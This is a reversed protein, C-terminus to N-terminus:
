SGVLGACILKVRSGKSKRRLPKEGRKDNSIGAHDSGYLGRTRVTVSRGPISREGVGAVRLNCATAETILKAGTCKRRM